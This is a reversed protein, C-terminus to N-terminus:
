DDYKAEFYATIGPINSIADSYSGLHSESTVSVLGPTNLVNELIAAGGEDTNLALLAAILADQKDGANDPNVIVPHSPVRDRICM